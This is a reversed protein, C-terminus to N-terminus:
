YDDVYRIVHSVFKITEELYNPNIIDINDRFTHTADCNGKSYRWLTIAKYGHRLFFYADTSDPDKMPVLEENLHKAVSNISDIIESSCDIVRLSKEKTSYAIPAQKGGGELNIVWAEGLESKHGKAFELAGRMGIEEGDSFLLWVEASNTPENKLFKAIELTIAVASANDEAGPSQAVFRSALNVMLYFSFYAISAILGYSLIDRLFIIEPFLFGRITETLSAIILYLMFISLLGIILGRWRVPMVQTKSDHHGCLIIQKEPKEKPHIIGIVNRGTASPLLRLATEHGGDIDLFSLIPLLIALFLSIPPFTWYFLFVLLSILLAFAASGSWFSPHLRFEEVNSEDVGIRQLEEFIFAATEENAKSGPPRPGIDVSLKKVYDYATM